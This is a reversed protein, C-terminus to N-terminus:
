RRFFTGLGDHEVLLRVFDIEEGGLSFELHGASLFTFVM